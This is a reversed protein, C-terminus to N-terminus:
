ANELATLRAELDARQTELTEIKAIAEQLAKVAKMYLVSYKVTKTGDEMDQVLGNMGSAELDQAIVGIRNAADVNDAIMSYNKVQVAKIDDWQSSAASVNEKLSADSLSGYSNNVNTVDGDAAVNFVHRNTSGFNSRLEICSFNSTSTKRYMKLPADTDEITITATPNLAIGVGGVGLKGGSSLRMRETDNTTFTLPHNTASGIATLSSSAYAQLEVSSGTHIIKQIAGSAGAVDLVQFSGYATPTRGIGVRGSSDIRMRETTNTTFRLDDTACGIRISNDGTTTNGDLFSIDATGDTSEVRMVTNTAGSNIHLTTDPSAEGVGVRNNAADVVLTSTDVTLDGTVNVGGNFTGGSSASVTDAVTFIDYVLIEVIDNAALATLGAITNATSTNYDTGAVLLVGNLYVDVYAGDAFVLTANNNDTGSLSTEGGTATFYFRSRVGTGDPSKGIYAM